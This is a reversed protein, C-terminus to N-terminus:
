YDGIRLLSKLWKRRGLLEKLEKDRTYYDKSGTKLDYATKESNLAKEGYCRWKKARHEKNRDFLAVLPGKGLINNMCWQNLKDQQPGTILLALM